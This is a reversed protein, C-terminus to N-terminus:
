GSMEKEFNSLAEDSLMDWFKFENEMESFVELYSSIAFLAIKEKSKKKIQAVKELQSGINKPLILELTAKM